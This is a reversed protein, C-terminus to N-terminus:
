RKMLEFFEENTKTQQMRGILFEIAELDDMSHLFKHLIWAKQLEEQSMLLEERRTGSRNINIAPYIRKDAIRRDMHLEMNGTGKFEEYIVEDMKSGTDVLATALITLSGGEEVNRAAGFFRKPGRLAGAEVGGSLTRGQSPAVANHARALRTISDLLIIVDQDAEVLRKAKLLVTEAVEVHKEPDRDFTSAIVEGQVNRDMDTVEEPREDVLLVILHADPHNTTIGNAIKQLLVTKGAKPPSVILGRQGKGIPSFLNLIRTSFEDSATELDLQENPYIPTLYDFDTREELNAPETGNIKNVHILAFFKEGEKPPRVRGNVTDGNQLNFRKIQSPSVYIDDPSSEYNYEHSRLFGYGDPLIELLGVKNIMGRLETDEKAYEAMYDPRDAYIRNQRSSRSGSQRGRSRSSERRSSRRERSGSSSSSDSSSKKRESRGSRRDRGGSDNSTSRSRRRESGGGNASGGESAEGSSGDDSSDAESGTSQREPAEAKEDQNGSAAEQAKAELIQYILDQKRMKSYGSLGLERAIDRLETIKKDQLTSINMYITPFEPSLRMQPPIGQRAVTDCM